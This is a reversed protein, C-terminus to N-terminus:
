RPTRPLGAPLVPDQRGATYPQGTEDFREWGAGRYAEARTNPDVAPYKSLIRTAELVRDDPVRVTVLSDGRRISEAYVHADPEPTGAASLAGVIGGVAGGAVAGAAGVALTSALWGAAVVPGIGPIALVGLGAMLGAAAGLAGGFTAGAEADETTASPEVAGDRGDAASSMLSVERDSFGAEKLELAAQLAIDYSEFLRTITQTMDFNGSARTRGRFRALEDAALEDATLEDATV